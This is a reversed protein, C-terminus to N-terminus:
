TPNGRYTLGLKTAQMKPKTIILDSGAKNPTNHKTTSENAQTQEGTRGPIDGSVEDARKHVNLETNRKRATTNDDNNGQQTHKQTLAQIQMGANFASYNLNTNSDQTRSKPDKDQRGCHCYGKSISM